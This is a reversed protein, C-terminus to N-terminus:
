ATFAIPWFLLGGSSAAPWRLMLPFGPSALNRGAGHRHRSFAAMADLDDAFYCIQVFPSTVAFDNSIDYEQAVSKRQSQLLSKSICEANMHFVRNDESSMSVTHRAGL